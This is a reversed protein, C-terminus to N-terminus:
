VDRLCSETTHVTDLLSFMPFSCPFYWLARQDKWPFSIKFPLMVSDFAKSFTLSLLHLCNPMYHSPFPLLAGTILYHLSTLLTRASCLNNASLWQSTRFLSPSDIISCSDTKWLSWPFPFPFISEYCSYCLGLLLFLGLRCPFWFRM